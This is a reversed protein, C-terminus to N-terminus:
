RTVLFAFFDDMERKTNGGVATQLISLVSDLWVTLVRRKTKTTCTDSRESDSIEVSM